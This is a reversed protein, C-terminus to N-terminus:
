ADRVPLDEDIVLGSKDARPCIRSNARVTCFYSPPRRGSPAFGVPVSVRSPPARFKGRSPRTPIRGGGGGGGGVPLPLIGVRRAFRAERIATVRLLDEVIVRGSKDAHPCIRGNARVVCFDSPSAVKQTTSRTRGSNVVAPIQSLMYMM